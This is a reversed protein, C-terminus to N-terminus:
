QSRAEATLEDGSQLFTVKGNFCAEEGAAVQLSGSCSGLLSRRPQQLKRFHLFDDGLDTTAFHRSVRHRHLCGVEHHNQFVLFQPSRSGCKRLKGIGHALRQSFNGSDACAKLKRNLHAEVFEHGARPLIHNALDEAVVEIGQSSQGTFQRQQCRSNGARHIYIGFLGGAHRLNGDAVLAFGHGSVPHPNFRHVVGDASGIGAFLGSRNVFAFAAEAQHQAEAGRLAAVRLLDTQQGYWRAASINGQFLQRIDFHAFSRVLDLPLFSPPADDNAEIHAAAIHLTNHFFQAAFNGTLEGHRGAIVHAVATGEFVQLLCAM